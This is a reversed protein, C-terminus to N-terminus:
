KMKMVKIKHAEVQFLAQVAETINQVVVSNDAGRTVVLVGTVTLEKSATDYFGGEPEKASLLVQVEGVGEVQSLLEELDQEMREKEGLPTEEEKEYSLSTEGGDGEEKKVPLAIVALLIGM